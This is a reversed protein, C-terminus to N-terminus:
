NAINARFWPLVRDRVIRRVNEGVDGDLKSHFDRQFPSDMKFGAATLLTHRVREIGYREVPEPHRRALSGAMETALLDRTAKRRAFEEASIDGSVQEWLTPADLLVASYAPMARGVALKAAHYAISFHAADLPSVGARAALKTVFAASLRLEDTRGRFRDFPDRVPVLTPQLAEVYQVDLTVAGTPGYTFRGQPLDNAVM